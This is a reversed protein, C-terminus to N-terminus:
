HIDSNNYAKKVLTVNGNSENSYNFVYIPYQDGAIWPPITNYYVFKINKNEVRLTNGNPQLLNELWWDTNQIFVTTNTSLDPDIESNITNVWKNKVVDVNSFQQDTNKAAIMGSLLFVIILGICLFIQFNIPIKRLNIPNDFILNVSFTLLICIGIQTSSLYYSYSHNEFFIFPVVSFFILLGIFFFKDFKQKQHIIVFVTFVLILAVIIAEFINNFIKPIYFVLNQFLVILSFQTGYPGTSIQDRFYLIRGSCIAFILFFPLMRFIIKKIDPINYGELYILELCFLMLPLMIATEKATIALITFLISILYFKVSKKDLYELYVVMTLLIFFSMLLENDLAIWQITINFLGRSLYFVSGLLSVIDNKFLKNLVTYILLSNSWFIFLLVIRYGLPNINFISYLYHFFTWAALPRYFVPQFFADVFANYLSFTNFDRITAFLISYDESYFGHKLSSSYLIITMLGLLAYKSLNNKLIRKLLTFNETAM